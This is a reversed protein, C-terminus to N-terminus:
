YVLAPPLIPMVLGLAWIFVIACFVALGVALPLAITLKMRQSAYATLLSIAFITLALGATRIMLAFVLPAVLIFVAGRLPWAGISTDESGFSKMLIILALLALIAAVAVPFFGPGMQSPRGMSLTGLSYMAFFGSIALFIFASAVDKRNVKM